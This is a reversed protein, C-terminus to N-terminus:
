ASWWFLGSQTYQFISMLSTLANVTNHLEMCEFHWCLMSNLM